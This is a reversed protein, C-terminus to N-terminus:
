CPNPMNPDHTRALLVRCMESEFDTRRALVVIGPRKRKRDVIAEASVPKEPQDNALASSKFRKDRRIDSAFGVLAYSRRWFM